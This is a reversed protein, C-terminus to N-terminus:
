IQRDPVGNEAEDSPAPPMDDIVTESPTVILGANSNASTMLRELWARDFKVPPATHYEYAIPVGPHIWVVTRDHVMATPDSWTFYFGEHRRLKQGIVIQLHSLVRDHIELRVTSDYIFKGM